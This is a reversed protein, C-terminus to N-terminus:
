KDDASFILWALHAAAFNQTKHTPESMASETIVLSPSYFNTHCDIMRLRKYYHFYITEVAKNRILIFVACPSYIKFHCNIM